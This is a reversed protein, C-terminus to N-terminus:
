RSPATAVLILLFRVMASMQPVVVRGATGLWIIRMGSASFFSVLATESAIWRTFLLVSLPPVMGSSMVVSETPRDGKWSLWLMIVGSMWAFISAAILPRLSPLM